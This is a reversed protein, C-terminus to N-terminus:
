LYDPKIISIYKLVIYIVDKYDNFGKKTLTLDLEFITFIKAYDEFWGEDVVPRHTLIIARQLNFKSDNHMRKIVELTSLTKGFRMKANWLMRNNNEFRKITQTIAEIQEPRFEIDVHEENIECRSLSKRGEKVALIANKATELDTEFWEEPNKDNGFNHKKIGSNLLVKHISKDKFIKNNNDIALTTFLLDEQIGVTNTYQKIRNKASINLEECNDVLMEIKSDSKLTSEGIKLIGEHLKDYIKFVYIVKYNFTNEFVKSM